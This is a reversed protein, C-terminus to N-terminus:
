VEFGSKQDWGKVNNITSFFEAKNHVHLKRYIKSIYNKVTQPSIFIRDAIGVSTLGQLLLIAVEEERETLGFYDALKLHSTKIEGEAVPAFFNNLVVIIIVVNLTLQSLLFMNIINLYVQIQPWFFDAALRLLSWIIYIVYVSFLVPYCEKMMKLKIKYHYLQFLYLCYVTIIIATITTIGQNDFLTHTLYKIVGDFLHVAALTGFFIKKGIGYPHNMTKHLTSMLILITSSYLPFFVIQATVFVPVPDALLPSLLRATLEILLILMFPTMMIILNKLLSIKFKNYIFLCLFLALTSVMFSAFYLVQSTILSVTQLNM